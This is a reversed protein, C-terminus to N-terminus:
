ELSPCLVRCSDRDLNSPLIHSCSSSATCPINSAEGTEPNSLYLTCESGDECCTICVNDGLWNRIDSIPMEAMPTPIPSVYASEMSDPCDECNQDVSARGM